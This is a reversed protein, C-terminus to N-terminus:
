NRDLKNGIFYGLILMIIGILLNKINFPYIITKMILIIISSLSIGIIFSMTKEKHHKFLYDMIKVVVIIGLIMGITYPILINLNKITISINTLNSISSIINEYTGIIMLLATGSIGPIVTAAADILGSVFYIILNNNNGEKVGNINSLLYIIAFSIIIILYNKKKTTKILPVIGGIILGIFFLMTIFYHNKILYSVVKSFFIIGLIVGIGIKLLFKTNEKKDNFFNNIAELAKEYVNLTIALLAGSVGPIIKAIGILFGKLILIITKM